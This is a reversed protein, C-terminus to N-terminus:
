KMEEEILELLLNLYIPSYTNKINNLIKKHMLLTEEDMLENKITAYSNQGNIRPPMISGFLEFLDYGNPIDFGLIHKSLARRYEKDYCVNKGNWMKELLLIASPTFSRSYHTYKPNGYEWACVEGGCIMDAFEGDNAYGKFNFTSVKEPNAYEELDIYCYEFPSCIVRCGTQLLKEFSCGKRPGRHKNAIRWFQVICDNPIEVAKSVDLEDNWLIIERGYKDAIYRIKKIGYYFLERESSINEKEMIKKCVKCDKWHYRRNDPLDDFCHEDGGIHIYKSPFIECIELILKEFFEYTQENGLCVTWGSQNEVDVQCKLNPLLSTLTLAHAPYEIEPIIEIGLKQCYKVLTKLDAKTYLETGNIQSNMPIVNSNYCIGLSDMLHLHIKNCKALSLRKIDEKLRSYNPLGRAIDIMVSRYTIDPYDKIKCCPLIFCDGKKHILTIVNALANRVGENDGYFVTVEKSTTEIAYAGYKFCSDFVFILKALEKKDVIIANINFELLYEIAFQVANDKGFCTLSSFKCEGNIIEKEKVTAVM